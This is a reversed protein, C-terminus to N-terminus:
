EGLSAFEAITRNWAPSPKGHEDLVGKSKWWQIFRERERPTIPPM